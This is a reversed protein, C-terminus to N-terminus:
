APLTSVSCPMSDNSALPSRALVDDAHELHLEIGGVRGVIHHVLELIDANRQCATASSSKAIVPEIHRGESKVM